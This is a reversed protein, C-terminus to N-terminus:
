DGLAELPQLQLIDVVSVLLEGHLDVLAGLSSWVDHSMCVDHSTCM